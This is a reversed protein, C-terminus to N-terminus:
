AKEIQVLCSNCTFAGGPSSKDKTLVNVCGGRDLGDSDPAFWAGTDLSAVGPMIGNTVRAATLLQGRANYIRVKDGNTIGRTHADVPNLWVVDDALKKLRPISHLSSNVRAKSHPSVLQIPYKDIIPDGLGEWAEIYRSIPPILPDQMEALKQSYLEIKGSPTPFPHHTPDEIQERFTVWPQNLPIHHVGQRKFVEYEPLDPTAAAFERLWAEDSKDNYDPIGLRSALETFIALDSKTQPLPEIAKEM